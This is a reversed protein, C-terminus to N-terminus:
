TLIFGTLGARTLDDPGPFLCAPVDTFLAWIMVNPHLYEVTNARHLMPQM